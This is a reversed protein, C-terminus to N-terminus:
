LHLTTGSAQLRIDLKKLLREDFQGASGLLLDGGGIAIKGSCASLDGREFRCHLFQVTLQCLRLQFGVGGALLLRCLASTRDLDHVTEGVVCGAGAMVGSSRAASRCATRDSSCGLRAARSVLRTPLGTSSMPSASGVAAERAIAFAVALPRSAARLTASRVM